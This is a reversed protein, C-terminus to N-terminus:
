IYDSIAETLTTGKQRFYGIWLNKWRYTIDSM